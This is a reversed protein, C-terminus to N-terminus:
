PNMLDPNYYHIVEQAQELAVKAPGDPDLLSAATYDSMAEGKLGKRWRVKGRIYLAMADSPNAAVNEEALRLAEDISNKHLLANIHQLTDM